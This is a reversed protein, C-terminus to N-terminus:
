RNILMSGLQIWLPMTILSVISTGVISKLAVEPSAGYQKSIVVPLMAAPMASQIILVKKLELSCPLIYAIAIYCLPFFFLRVLVSNWIVKFDNKFELQPLYDSLIAGVVILALPITVQGLMHIARFLFTPLLTYFGTFNLILAVVLAILPANILKSLNSRIGGTHLSMLAISWLAIETGVNHVMLVGLTDRDYLHLVLPIPIYGYNYISNCFIFSRKESSSTVGSFRVFYRALGLGIAVSLFGLIPSLTMNSVQDLAPNKLISDFILCPTFINIILWMVTKDSEPEIKYYRRLVMGLIVIFFLSTTSFVIDFIGPTGM